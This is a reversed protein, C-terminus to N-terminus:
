VGFTKDQCKQCMGSITYEKASKPNRFNLDPEDCFVCQNAEIVSKRDVGFLDTLFRDMAPTKFSPKM